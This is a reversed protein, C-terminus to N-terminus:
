VPCLIVMSPNSGNQVAYGTFTAPDNPVAGESTSTAYTVNAGGSTASGGDFSYAGGRLAPSGSGGSFVAVIEFWYAQPCLFPPNAPVASKIAVASGLSSNATGIVGYDCLLKGATGFSAAAYIRAYMNSTGGTYATTVRFALRKCVIPAEISARFWQATGSVLAPGNGTNTGSVRPTLGLGDGDLTDIWPTPALTTAATPGIIIQVNAPTGVNIPSPSNFLYSGSGPVNTNFITTRVLTCASISAGLNIPGYGGEQQKLTAWTSDTYENIVYPVPVSTGFGMGSFAVYPDIAGLGAPTPALTLSGTGSSTTGCIINEGRM